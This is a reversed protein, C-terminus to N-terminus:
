FVRNIISSFSPLDGARCVMNRIATRYIQVGGVLIPGASRSIFQSWEGTSAFGTIAMVPSTSLKLSVHDLNPFEYFFWERDFPEAPSEVERYRACLTALFDEQRNDLDIEFTLPSFFVFLFCPPAVATPVYRTERTAWQDTSSKNPILALCDEFRNKPPLQHLYLSERGM